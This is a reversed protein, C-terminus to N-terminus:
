PRRVNRPRASPFEGSTKSSQWARIAFVIVGLLILALAAGLIHLLTLTSELRCNISDDSAKCTNLFALLLAPKLHALSSFAITV